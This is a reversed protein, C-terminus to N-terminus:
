MCGLQELAKDREQPSVTNWHEADWGAMELLEQTTDDLKDFKKNAMESSDNVPTPKVELPKPSEALKPADSMFQPNDQNVGQLKKVAEALKNAKPVIPKGSLETKESAISAVRSPNGQIATKVMEYAKQEPLVNNDQLTNIITVVKGNEFVAHHKYLTNEEQGVGRTVIPERYYYVPHGDIEVLPRINGKTVKDNLIFYGEVAAPLGNDEKTDTKVEPELLENTGNLVPPVESVKLGQAAKVPVMPNYTLLIGKESNVNLLEKNNYNLVFPVIALSNITAEYSSDFLNKYASLQLTYQEKNSRTQRSGVNSFYDTISGDKGKVPHFSYRSTKFDYINFEGTMRNVSLADLEGAIRTGDPYKHFVVIRDTLLQEGANELNVRIRKLSKLLANFASDAMGEPKEIKENSGFFRRAIDDVISGMTAATNGTFEGTWNSGIATHVRSYEHYQGDEEMIMYSGSSTDATGDENRKVRHQDEQLKKLTSDVIATKTKRGNITDKVDQASKGTLYVQNTRDLVKGDPLVIKNKDMTAGVTKSGYTAEAYALDKILSANEPEVVNENIDYIVGNEVYYRSRNVTVSVGKKGLNAPTFERGKPNVAKQSVGSEDYYSTTFWSGTMQTDTLHTYLLDDNLIDSNYGASNIKKASINFPPNYKQLAAIVKDYIENPEIRSAEDYIVGKEPDITMAGTSGREVLINERTYEGDKMWRITLVKNGGMSDLSIHFTNDLHLVRGLDNLATLAQDPNTINSLKTVIDRIRTATKNAPGQTNLDFEEANFHKVRVIKPSYTGRSNKLLLYVKGDAHVEDYVPEVPNDLNINTQMRMNKMIGLKADGKIVERVSQTRTRDYKFKGLMIKDVTLTVQEGKRVKDIVSPLGIYNNKKATNISPLTGVVQDGHYMVIEDYDGIKEAKLTLVAGVPLNGNNVYDFAGKSQLYNYIGEYNPNTTIFPEFVGEELKSINYQSIAPRYYRNDSGSQITETDKSLNDLEQDETVSPSPNQPIRSAISSILKQVSNYFEESTMEPLGSIDDMLSNLAASAKNIDDESKTSVAKAVLGELEAIRNPINFDELYETDITGKVAGLLGTFPNRSETPVTSTNDNGTTDNSVERGKPTPRADPINDKEKARASANAVINAFKQYSEDTAGEVETVLEPNTLDDLSAEESFRKDLMKQLVDNDPYESILSQAEAQFSKAKRYDKALPNTNSNLMDDTVNNDSIVSEIDEFSKADTLLQRTQANSQEEATKAISEDTSATIEQLKNPDKILENYRNYFEKAKDALKKLDNVKQEIDFKDINYSENLAKRIASQMAIFSENKPDSLVALLENNTLDLITRDVSKGEKEIVAFNMRLAERVEDAVSNFRNVFDDHKVYMWTLESIQEPTVSADVRRTIEDKASRYINIKGLMEDKAETLSKIMAEKPMANGNTSYPGNGNEDTTNKVISDLNEDSTDFAQNIMDTLDNLKGANDFMVIDSVFQSTEANKFDFNDSRAAADDMDNQYKNHRIMGQYYNKFNSDELRSNLYNVMADDRGKAERYDRIEGLIGGEITIPSQFKGEKNRVSRFMPMGIGGTLHGIAYEEWSMPDSVVDNISQVVAKTWDLSQQAAEPDWKSMYFNEVESGYKLGPITAAIKQELEEAGESIPGLVAKAANRTSYYKGNKMAIKTDKIATNAGKAYLKGWMYYNSATLIAMNLGFDINGVKARDENLKALSQEYTNKADQALANYMETGGYAAEISALQAKYADDVKAKEFEYWEGSNNLAEVKGENMASVASGVVSRLLAPAGKLAGSVLNGTAMAGATFGLNKIFKDGWWNATFINKYWEGNQDNEIEENTRYNPLAQESWQNVSQMAKAFDNDWFASFEGKDLANAAGVITGITGDLFTTGALVVGKAIGAGLQAYWPQLEGRTNNLDQLQTLSTIDKDFMSDGVGARGVEQNPLEISSAARRQKFEPISQSLGFDDFERRQGSQRNLGRLGSTGVQSPDVINRSAM